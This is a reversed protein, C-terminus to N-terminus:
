KNRQSTSDMIFTNQKSPPPLINGGNCITTVSVKECRKIYFKDWFIGALFQQLQGQDVRYVPHKLITHAFKFPLYPVGLCVNKEEENKNIQKNIKVTKKLKTDIKNLTKFDHISLFPKELHERDGM